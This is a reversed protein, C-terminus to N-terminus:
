KEMFQKFNKIFDEPNDEQVYTMSDKISVFTSQSFISDIKRGLEIPFLEKDDEGWLILVPKEFRTLKDAAEETYKPHWEVALKRFDDRILKNEVFNKVYLNFIEDKSLTHSLLGFAMNWKLFPRYKFLQAMLWLYGSVKAMNKLSQFKKPPFIEYGECNSLILRSVKEKYISAFVQAYAGGTDNAIIIVEQLNLAVIVKAILNAIGTPTFDLEELIPIRHGGFPWEPIICHYNKSLEPLVKRWTNSNSFAGHIFIIPQGKGYENYEIINKEIRIQKMTLENNQGVNLTFHLKIAPCYGMQNLEGVRPDSSSNNAEQRPLSAQSAPLRTCVGLQYGMRKRHPLKNSLNLKAKPHNNM